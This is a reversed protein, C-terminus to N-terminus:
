RYTFLAKSPHENEEPQQRWRSATRRTMDPMVVLMPRVAAKSEFHGCRDTCHGRSGRREAVDATAVHETPEDVQEFTGSVLDPPERDAAGTLIAQLRRPFHFVLRFWGRFRQPEQEPYSAEPM